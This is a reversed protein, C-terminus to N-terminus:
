LDLHGIGPADRPCPGTAAFTNTNPNFLEATGSGGGTLLVMGNKLLTATHFARPATMPRRAHVHQLRITFRQRALPTNGPGLGGAILVKGNGLITETQGERGANM